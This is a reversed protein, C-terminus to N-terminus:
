PSTQAATCRDGCRVSVPRAPRSCTPAPRVAMRVTSTSCNQEHDAHLILFMSLARVVDPDPEHGGAPLSFMLHLSNRCYSFEPAPYVLPQGISTKYAYAAVTRIKSILRAAANEFGADDEMEMVDSNYCSLTNIMSSLIAMPHGSPPYGQFSNRMGEHIMEHESLLRRFGAFQERTPLEGYISLWATEIFSSKEGLQEIPYGRYRLIGKEANIFTIQSRVSGTDRYGEDLTILGTQDRLASIDVARERESGVVLPLTVSRDNLDLLQVSRSANDATLM